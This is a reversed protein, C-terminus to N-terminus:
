GKLYNDLITNISQQEYYPITILPLRNCKCFNLKINDHIKTKNHVTKARRKKNVPFYHHQGQYEILVNYDLLYFDFRLLYNKPSRCKDFTYEQEFRINNDKLYKYISLEGYSRVKRKKRWM